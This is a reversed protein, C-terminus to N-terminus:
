DVLVYQLEPNHKTYYLCYVLCLGQGKPLYFDLRPCTPLLYVCLLFRSLFSGINFHLHLPNELFTGAMTLCQISFSFRAVDCTRQESKPCRSFM